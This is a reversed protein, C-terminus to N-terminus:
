TGVAIPKFLIFSEPLLHKIEDDFPLIAQQIRKAYNISDTIEKIQKKLQIELEKKQKLLYYIMEAIVGMLSFLFLVWLYKLIINTTNDFISYSLLTLTFLLGIATFSLRYYSKVDMDIFGFLYKIRPDEKKNM